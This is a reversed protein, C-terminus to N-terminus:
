LQARGALKWWAVVFGITNWISIKNNKARSRRLEQHLPTGGTAAWCAVSGAIVMAAPELKGRANRMIEKFEEDAPDIFYIGCCHEIMTLSRNKKQASKSNESAEWM